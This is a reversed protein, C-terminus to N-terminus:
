FKEKDPEANLQKIERMIGNKRIYTTDTLAVSCPSSVAFSLTLIM